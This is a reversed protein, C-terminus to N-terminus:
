HLRIRPDIVAYTADVLFNIFVTVIAFVMVNTQVQIYDLQKVSSVTLQGIGPLSFLTEMVVAGGLLYAMQIGVITVIPILANRLAHRMVIVTPRLGKARATRIYDENLVELMGARTFRLTSASLRVGVVLVPLGFQQVNQWPHEILSVYGFPVTWGFWLSFYVLIMTGLWFDPISLGLVVIGRTTYDFWSNQRVASIVGGPIAICLALVVTAVTLEFTVPFARRVNELSSTHHVLSRGGDGRLFDRAWILYQESLLRDLGLEARIVAREEKSLALGDGQASTVPDGPLVRLLLFIAISLSVLVPVSLVARRVLYALM